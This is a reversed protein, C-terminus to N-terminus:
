VVGEEWLLSMQIKLHVSHVVALIYDRLSKYSVISGVVRCVVFCSELSSVFEHIADQAYSGSPEMSLNFLM